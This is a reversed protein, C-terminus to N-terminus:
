RIVKVTGEVVDDQSIQTAARITVDQAEFGLCSGPQVTASGSGWDLVIPYARSASDVKGPNVKGDCVSLMHPQDFRLRDVDSDFSLTFENRPQTLEAQNILLETSGSSEVEAAIATGGAALALPAAILGCLLRYHKRSLM